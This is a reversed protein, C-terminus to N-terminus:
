QCTLRNFDAVSDELKSDMGGMVVVFADESLGEVASDEPTTQVAMQELARAHYGIPEAVRRLDPPAKVVRSALLLGAFRHEDSPGQLMALTKELDMAQRKDTIRM